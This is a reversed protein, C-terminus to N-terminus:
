ALVLSSKKGRFSRKRYVTVAGSADDCVECVTLNTNAAPHKQAQENKERVTRSHLYLTHSHRTAPSRIAPQIRICQQMCAPCTHQSAQSPQTYPQQKKSTIKITSYNPKTDSASCLLFMAKLTSSTAMFTQEGYCDCRHVAVQQSMRGGGEDKDLGRMM